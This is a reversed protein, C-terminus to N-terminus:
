KSSARENEPQSVQENGPQANSCSFRSAGYQQNFEKIEGRWIRALALNGFSILLRQASNFM